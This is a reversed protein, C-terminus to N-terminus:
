KVTASSAVQQHNDDQHLHNSFRVVCSVRLKGSVPSNDRHRRIEPARASSGLLESWASLKLVAM